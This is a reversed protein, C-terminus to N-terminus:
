ILGGDSARIISDGKRAGFRKRLLDMPKEAIPEMRSLAKMACAVDSSQLAEAKREFKKKLKGSSPKTFVISGLIM